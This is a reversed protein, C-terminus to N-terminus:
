GNLLGEMTRVGGLDIIHDKPEYNTIIETSHTTAVIQMGAFLDKVEDFMRLHRTYHVHMELNDVLVIEPRRIDELNLVQTLSKAIKKEGASGRKSHVRTHQAGWQKNLWFGTVIDCPEGRAKLDTDEYIEPEVEIGTIGEYAKKFKPWLEARLQFNVMDSDFKAFYVLGPWWWPQGLIDNRTFGDETLIVTYEKGEREFVGEVVFGAAADKDEYNYINKVLSARLRARANVSPVWEAIEAEDGVEDGAEIHDEKKPTIGEAYDMSSCLSAVANLITTKGIGNPGILIAFEDFAIEAERWGCYNTMKLRKIKM